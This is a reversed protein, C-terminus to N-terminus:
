ARFAPRCPDDEDARARGFLQLGHLLLEPLVHVEDQGILLQMPMKSAFSISKELRGAITLGECLRCARAAAKRLSATYGRRDLLHDPALVRIELYLGLARVAKAFAPFKQHKGLCALKVSVQELAHGAGTPADSARARDDGAVRRCFLKLLM